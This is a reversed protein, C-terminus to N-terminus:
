KPATSIRFINEEVLNGLFISAILSNEHNFANSLQKCGAVAKFIEQSVVQENLLLSSTFATTNVSMHCSAHTQGSYRSM